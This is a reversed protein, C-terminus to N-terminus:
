ERVHDEAHVIQMEIIQYKPEPIKGPLLITNFFMGVGIIMVGAVASVSSVPVRIEKNLFKQLPSIPKINEKMSIIQQKFEDNLHMDHLNDGLMTKIEQDLIHSHNKNNINKM